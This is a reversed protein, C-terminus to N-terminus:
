QKCCCPVTETASFDSTMSLRMTMFINEALDEETFLTALAVSLSMDSGAVGIVTNDGVTNKGTTVGDLAILVLAKNGVNLDKRMEEQLEEAAKSVMELFKSM